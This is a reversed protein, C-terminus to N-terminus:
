RPLAVVPIDSTFDIGFDFTANESFGMVVVEASTQPPLAFTFQSNLNNNAIDDDANICGAAPDDVSFQPISISMTTDNAGTTTATITATVTDPNALGFAVFAFRTTRFEVVCVGQQRVRTRGAATTAVTSGKNQVM